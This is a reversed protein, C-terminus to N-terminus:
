TPLQSDANAATADFPCDHRCDTLMMVKFRSYRLLNARRKALCLEVCFVWCRLFGDARCLWFAYSFLAHETPIGRERLVRRRVRDIARLISPEAHYYGAVWTGLLVGGPGQVSKHNAKNHFFTTPALDSEVAM